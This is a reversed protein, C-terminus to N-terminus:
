KRPMPLLPMGTRGNPLTPSGPQQLCPRTSMLAAMNLTTSPPSDMFSATVLRDELPAAFFIGKAKDLSMVKAPVELLQGGTAYRCTYGGPILIVDATNGAPLSTQITQIFVDWPFTEYKITVNPNQAQFETFIAQDAENFAPAQHGWVRLEVPGAPTKPGGCAALVLGTILFLSFLTLSLRKSM